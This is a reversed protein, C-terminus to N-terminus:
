VTGLAQIVRECMFKTMGRRPNQITNRFRRVTRIKLCPRLTKSIPIRKQNDRRPVAVFNVVLKRVAASRAAILIPPMRSTDINVGLRTADTLSLQFQDLVFSSSAFFRKTGYTCYTAYEHPSEGGEGPFTVWLYRRM